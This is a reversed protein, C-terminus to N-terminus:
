RAVELQPAAGRLPQELAEGGPAPQGLVEDVAALLAKADRDALPEAALQPRPDLPDQAIGGREGAAVEVRGLGAAQQALVDLAAGLVGVPQPVERHELQPVTFPDVTARSRPRAWTTNEM